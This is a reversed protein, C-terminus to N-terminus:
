ASMDEYLKTMAASLQEHLTGWLLPHMEPAAFDFSTIISRLSADMTELAEKLPEPTAPDIAM